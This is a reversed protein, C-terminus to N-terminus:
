PIYFPQAWQRLFDEPSQPPFAIRSSATERPSERVGTFIATRLPLPPVPLVKVETVVCVFENDHIDLSVCNLAVMDGNRTKFVKRVNDIRVRVNTENVSREEGAM